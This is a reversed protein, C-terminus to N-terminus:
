LRNRFYDNVENRNFKYGGSSFALNKTREAFSAEKNNDTSINSEIEFALIEVKKGRLEEPLRIQLVPENVTIIERYM